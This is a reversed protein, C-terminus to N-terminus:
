PRQDAAYLLRIPFDEEGEAREVRWLPTFLGAALRDAYARSFYHMTVGHPAPDFTDPGVEKGRGYWQDSTSRASYLHLGGHRLADHIAQILERHEDETYDMNFLMNSYVADVSELPLHQLFELADLEIREFDPSMQGPDSDQQSGLEALDVGRVHFGQQSLFRSDRGYGCGLEVVERIDGADRLIPLCWRAFSSERDGFFSPDEAYKEGWFDRQRGRRQERSSAADREAVIGEIAGRPYAQGWRSDPHLYEPTGISTPSSGSPRESGRDVVGTM